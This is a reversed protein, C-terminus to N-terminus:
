SRNVISNKDVFDKSGVINNAFEDVRINSPFIDEKLMKNKMLKTHQMEISNM